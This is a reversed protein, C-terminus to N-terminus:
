GQLVSLRAALEEAKEKAMRPHGFMLGVCILYWHFLWASIFALWVLACVLSTILGPIHGTDMVLVFFPAVVLAPSFGWIFLTGVPFLAFAPFRMATQLAWAEHRTFWLKLTHIARPQM